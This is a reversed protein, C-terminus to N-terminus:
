PKVNKIVYKYNECIENCMQDEYCSWLHTQNNLAFRCKFHIYLPMLFALLFYISHPVSHMSKWIKTDFWKAFKKSVNKKWLSKSDNEKSFLLFDCFINIWFIFRIKCVSTLRSSLMKRTQISRSFFRSSLVGVRLNCHKCPHSMLSAPLYCVIFPHTSPENAALVSSPTDVRM